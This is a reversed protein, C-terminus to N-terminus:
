KPGWLEGNQFVSLKCINTHGCSRSKDVSEQIKQKMPFLMVLGKLIVLSCLFRDFCRSAVRLVTWIKTPGGANAKDGFWANQLASYLSSVMYAHKKKILTFLIPDTGLDRYAVGALKAPGTLAQCLKAHM